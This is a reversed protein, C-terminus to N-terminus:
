SRKFSEKREEEGCRTNERKPESLDPYLTGGKQAKRGAKRL